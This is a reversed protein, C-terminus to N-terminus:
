VVGKLKVSKYNKEKTEAYYVRKRLTMFQDM